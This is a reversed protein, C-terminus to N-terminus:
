EIAGRLSKLQEWQGHSYPGGILRGLCASHFIWWVEATTEIVDHHRAMLKIKRLTLRLHLFINIVRLYTLTIPPIQQKHTQLAPIITTMVTSCSSQKIRHRIKVYQLVKADIMNVTHSQLFTTHFSCLM